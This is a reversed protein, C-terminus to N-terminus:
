FEIREVVPSDSIHSLLKKSGDKQDTELIWVEGTDMEYRSFIEELIDWIEGEGQIM